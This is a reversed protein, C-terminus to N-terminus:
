KVGIDRMLKDLRPVEANILASFEKPSGAIVEAGITAFRERTDPANIGSAIDRHLRELIPPPLGAPGCIGHWTSIEYGPVGAEAMTPIDPMSPTRKATSIGLARLKGSKVYSMSGATAEFMFQLRDAILDIGALASGKYPIHIIDLGALKVFLGGALHSTSGTGASGYNFAGPKAKAAAIVDKVSDFGSSPNVLMLYPIVAVLTIASFDRRGDYPPKAMLLPSTVVTSNSCHLLTYGDPSAKVVIQGGLVGTGGPRNDVVVQVGLRDGLKQAVLRGVTDAPGGPAFAVIMRVPRTPYSQAHVPATVLSLALVFPTFRTLKQMRTKREIFPTPRAQRRKTALKYFVNM